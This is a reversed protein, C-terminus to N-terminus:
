TGGVGGKGGKSLVLGSLKRHISSLIHMGSHFGERKGCPTEVQSNPYATFGVAIALSDLKARSPPRWTLNSIVATRTRRALPNTASEAYGAKIISGAPETSRFSHDSPNSPTCCYAGCPLLVPSLQPCQCFAGPFRFIM